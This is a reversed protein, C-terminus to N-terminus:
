HKINKILSFDFDPFDCNGNYYDQMISVDEKSCGEGSQWLTMIDDSHMAGRTRIGYRCLMGDKVTGIRVKGKFYFVINYIGNEYSILKAQKKNSQKIWKDVDDSMM